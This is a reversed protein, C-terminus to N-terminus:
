LSVADSGEDRFRGHESRASTAPAPREMSELPSLAPFHLHPGEGPEERRRRSQAPQLSRRLPESAETSLRTVQRPNRGDADMVWIQSSANQTSGSQPSAGQPSRNSTFYILRSDPSWRPSENSSGDFTIQRPAGGNVPVTFIQKPKTNKDFDVSEVTFAVLKGDPSLAPDGIRRIKLMTEVDFPHKQASVLSALALTACTLTLFSRM